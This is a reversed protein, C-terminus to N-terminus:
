AYCTALIFLQSSDKRNFSIATALDGITKKWTYELVNRTNHTIAGRLNSANLETCLNTDIDYVISGSKQLFQVLGRRKGPPLLLIAVRTEL